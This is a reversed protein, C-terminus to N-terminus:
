GCGSNACHKMRGIERFGAHNCERMRQFRRQDGLTFKHQDMDAVLVLSVPRLKWSHALGQRTPLKQGPAAWSRSHRFKPDIDDLHDPMRGIWDFTHESIDLLVACVQDHERRMMMTQIPQM